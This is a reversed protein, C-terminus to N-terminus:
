EKENEIHIPTRTVKTETVKIPQNDRCPIFIEVRRSPAVNEGLIIMIGDDADSGSPNYIAKVAFSSDYGYRCSMQFSDADEQGNAGPFKLQPAIIM